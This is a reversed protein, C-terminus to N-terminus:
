EESGKEERIGEVLAKLKALNAGVVRGVEKGSVYAVFTPMATAGQEEAVEPVDDVDLKLFTIHPNQTALTEYHPAILKCPPCWAATYDVITLPSTSLTTQFASPTTITQVM